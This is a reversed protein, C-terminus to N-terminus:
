LHRRSLLALRMIGHQHEDALSLGLHRLVLRQGLGVLNCVVLMQVHLLVVAKAVYGDNSKLQM